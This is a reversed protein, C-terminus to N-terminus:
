EFAEINRAANALSVRGLIVAVVIGVIALVPAFVLPDLGVLPTVLLPLAAYALGVLLSRLEAGGGKLEKVNVDGDNGWDVKPSRSESWAGVCVMLWSAGMMLALGCVIILPHIGMSTVVMFGGVGMIVLTILANVAFGPVVKARVQQVMPVPIFKMHIWNSGERSVSTAAIKNSCTCLAAMVMLFVLVFGALQADADPISGLKKLVEGFSGSMLMVGFLVPSVVLPYVVYNILVSSNRTVKHVETTVLAKLVPTQEQAAGGTYADAKGAGSSLTTVIRMYLARALLVFVAFSLISILVFLGTGLPDVHVFAYVAFGYAPFAMVVSGMTEGMGGLAQAIGDNLKMGNIVVYFGVSVALSLVTTITTIADKRRVRKFVTAILISLIGAYSTPMFPAFIVALVYVVWYRLSMGAAIGWGALPGVIFLFTWLYSAALVGLAKSLVIAFPSVPLPLLDNIDSSGFFSGLVTPFSFTFTLMGCGLFLMNYITTDLGLNGMIGYASYGLWGTGALMILGILLTGTMAGNAGTRKEIAGRVGGLAQMIQLRALLVISNM